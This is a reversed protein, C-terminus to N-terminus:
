AAVDSAKYVTQNKVIAWVIRANRNALAVATKNVGKKATLEQLWHSRKDTKNKSHLIVSRAGHVLLSRIYKDGRKSIGLLKTKGGTSSQKPVLGLYASFERGNKFESGNGILTSLITATQKGIGPITEIRQCTQNSHFIEEIKNDYKEIKGEIALLEEYLDKCFFLTTSTIEVESLEVLKKRLASIGQPIAIGYEHLLGRIMNMLATKEKLMHSRIRHISQIDQQELKKIPVFRMSPRSVAECIAEADNADNKNSKVYPKVFQPSILKVDHGHKSFERAWHNAGSCAEMGILCPLINAITLSLQSRSVNKKLVVKGQADIGHLQFSNKALDIGLTTIEQM